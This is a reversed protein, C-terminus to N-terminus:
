VSLTAIKIAVVTAQMGDVVVIIIEMMVFVMVQTLNM